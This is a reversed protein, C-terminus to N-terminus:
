IIGLDELQGILEYIPGFTAEVGDPFQDFRETDKFKRLVARGEETQDMETLIEVLRGVLEPDLDGSHVGVQRPVDISRALARFRGPQARELEAFRQPDTAAADIRGQHIWILTNKDDGTFVFGLEDAAPMDDGSALERMAIGNRRLLGAPLLYGSTSDPEQFGIRRGRLDDLSEIGSDAPVLIISHYSVVGDKWRRLFPRGGADRAVIAAVLPSDFMLDVEGSAMARAMAESTPYHATEVSTIGDAALRRALYAALPATRKREKKVNDTIGGITLTEAYIPAVALFLVAVASLALSVCRM